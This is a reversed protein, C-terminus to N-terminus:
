TTIWTRGAQWNVTFGNSFHQKAVGNSTYEESLPYGLGHERGHRIFMQGIATNNAGNGTGGANHPGAALGPM